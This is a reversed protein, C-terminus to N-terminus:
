LSLNLFKLKVKGVNFFLHLFLYLVQRPEMAVKPERMETTKNNSGGSGVSLNRSEPRLESSNTLNRSESRSEFPGSGIQALSSKEESNLTLNEFSFGFPFKANLSTSTASPPSPLVSPSTMSTQFTDSSLMSLRNNSEHGTPQPIRPMASIPREEEGEKFISGSLDPGAFPDQGRFPDEERFPNQLTFPDQGLFPDQNHIPLASM